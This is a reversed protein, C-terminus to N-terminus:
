TIILLMCTQEKVHVHVYFPKLGFKAQRIPIMVEYNCKTLWIMWQSKKLEPQRFHMWYKMWWRLNEINYSINSANSLKYFKNFFSFSSLFRTPRHPHLKNEILNRIWCKRTWGVLKEHQTCKLLTENLMQKKMMANAAFFIRHLRNWVNKNVDSPWYDTAHWLFDFSSFTM